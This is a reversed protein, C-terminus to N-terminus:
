FKLIHINFNNKYNNEVKDMSFFSIFIKKFYPL